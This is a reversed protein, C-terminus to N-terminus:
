KQGVITSLTAVFCAFESFEINGSKDNDLMKFFKEQEAKNDVQLVFFSIIFWMFSWYLRWCEDCSDRWLTATSVCPFEARLMEILEAKTMTSSNGDKGAYKDFAKRLCFVAEAVSM